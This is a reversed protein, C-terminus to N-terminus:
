RYGSPSWPLTSGRAELMASGSRLVCLRNELIMVKKREGEGEGQEEGEREGKEEAEKCRM